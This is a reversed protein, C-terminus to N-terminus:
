SLVLSTTQTVMQTATNMFWRELKQILEQLPFISFSRVFGFLRIVRIHILVGVSNAVVPQCTMLLSLQFCAIESRQLVFRCPGQGAQSTGLGRRSTIMM